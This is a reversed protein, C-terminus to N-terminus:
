PWQSLKDELVKILSYKITRNIQQECFGNSQPHFAPTIREKVGMKQPLNHSVEKLTRM